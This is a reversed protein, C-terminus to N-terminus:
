YRGIDDRMDAVRHAPCRKFRRRLKRCPRQTILFKKKRGFYSLPSMWLEYSERYSSMWELKLSPVVLKGPLSWQRRESVHSYILSLNNATFCAQNHVILIDM